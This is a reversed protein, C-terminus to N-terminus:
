VTLPPPLSPNPTTSPSLSPSPARSVAPGGVSPRQSGGLLSVGVVGVAVVVVAAIAVKAYTNMNQFRRPMRIPVRRQSTLEITALADSLLWEPARQPAEDAFLDAVRRELDPYATM